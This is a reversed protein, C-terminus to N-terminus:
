SSKGVVTISIDTETTATITMQTEIGLGGSDSILCKMLSSYPIVDDVDGAITGTGNSVDYFVSQLTVITDLAEGEFDEGGGYIKVGDSAVGSTTNTSTSAASVGLGAAIAVNLTADNAAYIGLTGGPVTYSSTANRTTIVDATSTTATFMASYDADANLTAAIQTAILAATTHEATTLPVNIAKPSGTMGSATVTVVLNGDSTAGSGATVTATEVQATGAVFATSGTTDNELLDLELVDGSGVAIARISYAVDSDSLSTNANNAGIQITGVTNPGIPTAQTNLGYTARTSVINM